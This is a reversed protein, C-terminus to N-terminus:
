GAFDKFRARWGRFGLDEPRLRLSRGRIGARLCGLTFGLGIAVSVV